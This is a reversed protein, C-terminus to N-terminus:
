AFKKVESLSDIQYSPSIQSFNTTREPNFWMTDIGANIGGLIDSSLSDGVILTQVPDASSHSFFYKFFEPDPKESGIKESVFVQEFFDAMKADKLRQVQVKFVGNTALYLHKKASFLDTLLKRAGDVEEHGYALYSLYQDSCSNGNIELQYYNKFFTHFREEFLQERTIQKKELKKWLSQNFNSFAQKAPEDLKLKLDSFLLQLAQQEASKFDLLTDDLDFIFTQYKKVTM